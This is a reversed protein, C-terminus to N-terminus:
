KEIRWKRLHNCPKNMCDEEGNANYFQYRCNCCNRMSTKQAKLKRVKKKLKKYKEKLEYFDSELDTYKQAMPYESETM